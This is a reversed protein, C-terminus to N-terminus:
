AAVWVPDGDGGGILGANIIGGNANNVYENVLTTRRGGGSHVILSESSQNDENPHVPEVYDEEKKEDEQAGTVINIFETPDAM